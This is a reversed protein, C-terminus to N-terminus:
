RGNPPVTPQGSSPVGDPGLWISTQKAGMKSELVSGGIKDVVFHDPTVQGSVVSEGLGWNADIVAEDYDNSLPNLSFGM